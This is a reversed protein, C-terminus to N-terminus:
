AAASSSSFRPWASSVRLASMGSASAAKLSFRWGTKVPTHGGHGDGPAAALSSHLDVEGRQLGQGELDEVAIDTDQADVARAPHVCLGDRHEGFVALRGERQAVGREAREDQGRGALAREARPEVEVLDVDDGPHGNARGEVELLRRGTGDLRDAVQGEGDDRGDM